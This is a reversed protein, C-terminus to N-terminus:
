HLGYVEVIADGGINLKTRYSLVIQEIFRERGRLQIPPSEEGGRLERPVPVDETEGNAFVIRMSKVTVAHKLAKIKVQRFAGLRRGVEFVDTDDKLMDARQAGLLLWQGYGGGRPGPAGQDGGVWNDAYEGYVEVVAQGGFGPRAQYVLQIDNIRGDRKMDIPQTVGNASIEANIPIRDADGRTYNIVIERLYIDNRLVRLAIQKFRGVDRGLRIVDREVQFGVTQTGFLVWGKPVQGGYIRQPPPGGYGQGGYGPGGSFGPGGRGQDAARLGWLEAVAQGGFGPRNKYVLDVREVIRGNDGRPSPALILTGTEGGARIPQNVALDQSEGSRYTVRLDLLFVDNRRIILKVARFRGEERGIQIVDRDVGFGVTQEGLKVWQDRGPGRQASAPAALMIVAAALLTMVGALRFRVTM